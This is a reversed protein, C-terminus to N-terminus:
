DKEDRTKSLTWRFIHLGMKGGGRAEPIPAWEPIDKVMQIFGNNLLVKGSARNGIFTTGTIDHCNMRPIMWESILTNLALSM